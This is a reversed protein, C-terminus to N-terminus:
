NSKKMVFALGLILSSIGFIGLGANCGGGGGGGSSGSSRKDNNGSENITLSLTKEDSSSSNEATINVNYSGAQKPTGTINSGTLSLGNPLNKVSWTIPTAGTAQLTYSYYEGVTGSPLSTTTITVDDSTKDNVVLQLTKSATGKNNTATVTVSYTGATTPTGTINNGSLSLGNPLGSAKWTIPTTGAANLNCTYAQGVTGVPLSTTMISPEGGVSVAVTFARICANCSRKVNSNDTLTKGDKWDASVPTGSYKYAFYSKGAINVSAGRIDGTDEVASAYKYAASSSLKVIISFYEGANFQIPNTLTITHYGAYPMKGSAIAKGLIGPTAPQKTGHNNVYIEYEINNDRTHFSIEKLEEAQNTRFVNAAWNYSISNDAARSDHGYGYSNSDSNNGAIFTATTLLFQEYSMWFYGKDAWSTGWSNRVLWAGNSNPKYSGTFNDRSYNDDWGVAVVAHNHTNSPYYYSNNGLGNGKHEYSITVAGYNTILTKIINQMNTRNNASVRGLEYAERLMLPHAYDEPLKNKPVINAIKSDNTSANDSGYGSYTASSYPLDTEKAPGIWSLFPIALCYNGGQNLASNNKNYLPYSYGPRSDKYVFWAQHFESLDPATTGFGQAIYSTELAGLSAFSWCTRYGEQHRIPPLKNSNRPDYKAPLAAARAVNNVNDIEPPNNELHSWDVPEPILGYFDGSSYYAEPNEIFNNYESNLPAFEVNVPEWECIFGYADSSISKGILNGDYIVLYVDGSAESVTENFTKVVSM